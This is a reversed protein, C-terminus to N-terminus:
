IIVLRVQQIGEGDLFWEIDPTPYGSMRVLFRVPSGVIVEAPKPQVDITPSTPAEEEDVYRM